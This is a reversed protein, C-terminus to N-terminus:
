MQLGFLGVPVATVAAATRSKMAARGRCTSAMTSSAYMSKASAGPTLETASMTSPGCRTTTSRVKELSCPMAPM